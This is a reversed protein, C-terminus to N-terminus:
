SFIWSLSCQWKLVALNWTQKRAWSCLASSAIFFNWTESLWTTNNNKRPRGKSSIKLFHQEGLLEYSSICITKNLCRTGKQQQQQQKCLWAALYESTSTRQQLVWNGAPIRFSFVLVALQSHPARWWGVFHENCKFCHVHDLCLYSLNLSPQNWHSLWTVHKVKDLFHGTINTEFPPTWRGPSVICTAIIM